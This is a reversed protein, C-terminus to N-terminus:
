PNIIFTTTITSFSFLLVRVFVINILEVTVEDREPYHDSIEGLIFAWIM